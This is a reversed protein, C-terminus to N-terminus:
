FYDKTIGNDEMKKKLDNLSLKMIEPKNTSPSIRIFSILQDNSNKKDILLFSYFDEENMKLKIPIHLSLKSCISYFDALLGPNFLCLNTEIGKLVSVGHSLKTTKEIGHGFTHGFNLIVRNGVENLDENVISTKFNACLLILRDLDLENEKVFTKIADSLFCYKVLEGMGSELDEKGLTKLFSPVLLVEDPLHFQGILNKGFKSNIGVKGGIGADIMGLLTTPISKWSIGRLLTSAVFGGLDTTAGGGIVILTEDRTVRHSLFFNMAEEYKVFSKSQEPDRVLYYVKNELLDKLKPYLKYVNEDIFFYKYSNLGAILQSLDLLQM